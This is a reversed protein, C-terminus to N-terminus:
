RRRFIKLPQNNVAVVLYKGVIKIDRVEGNVFLGSQAPKMYDFTGGDAVLTIGYSADFRGAQPKLGFFNGAMFVDKKGDHNLDEVCAAFMYSLQAMQTFPEVTFNGMGDNRFLCTRTENVQLVHVNKLQEESFIKEIPKGAYDSFYLFDKRLAPIQSQLEGKMFYPYAKHDSKFYVPICEIQGNKDFDGVYLKAPESPTGKIRSNLGANGAVLDLDGDNDIDSIEVNNWWGSTNSIESRNKIFKGDYKFITVPMWDGVVVLEDNGDGDVDAAKADTVMGLSIFESAVTGTVEEFRGDGKNELIASSPPIGYSGPICRAGVFIDELGDKNFDWMTICSANVPIKPISVTDRSFNGRGDNKYL